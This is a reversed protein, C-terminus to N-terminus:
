NESVVLDVRRDTPELPLSDYLQFGFALAITPHNPEREFFRDYFGGGYGVRDGQRTFAVGPVLILADEECAKECTLKPERIGFYGPELDDWSDIYYFDMNQGDVRPFAARKEAAMAADIIARTSVERRVDAYAYVVKASAFTKNALIKGTIIGNWLLEDEPSMSARNAFVEQRYKQKDM